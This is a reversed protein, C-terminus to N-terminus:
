LSSARETFGLDESVFYSKCFFYSEVFHPHHETCQAPKVQRKQAFFLSNESFAVWDHKNNTLLYSDTKSRLIHCAPLFLNQFARLFTPLGAAVNDPTLQGALNYEMLWIYIYFIASSQGSFLYYPSKKPFLRPVPHGLFHGKALKNHYSGWCCSKLTEPKKIIFVGIRIYSLVHFCSILVIKCWWFAKFMIKQVRHFM